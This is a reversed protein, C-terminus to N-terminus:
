AKLFKIKTLFQYINNGYPLMTYDEKDFVKFVILLVVDVMIAVLIVLITALKQNLIEILFHHTYYSSLGVILTVIVPKIYTQYINLNLKISKCTAKMNIIFSVCSAVISSIAAGNIGGLIGWDLRPILLLNLLLKIVAGIALSIAPVYVKGLGQLTGGLTQNLLTFIITFASLRLLIAAEPSYANPFLLNLIPGALVCMGIACPLGILLTIRLSFTIRRKATKIDGNAIAGSIAPVLATAFAVNLSAPMGVLIDIKGSLIGYLRTAENTVIDISSYCNILATKLGNVVTFTDINRNIASIISAISIPISIALIKKMIISRKEKRYVVKSNKINAIIKKKHCLYFIHLYLFGLITAVSSAVNGAIAMIVTRNTNHSNLLNILWSSKILSINAIIQVFTITLISKFLQELMQSNSTAKMNYMGNFYGRIVSALSVFLIAPSLAIMVGQVSSNGVLNALTRSFVFLLTSLVLGIISFLLMATKFIEHAEEHKGVALKESVLKSIANPVGISSVALLLTYIQYGAGYIGNGEDGFGDINTIVLRYVLGLLKVVIQAIFLSMVGLMFSQKNEKSERERM